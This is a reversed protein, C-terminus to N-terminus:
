WSQIDEIGIIKKISKLLYFGSICVLLHRMKYYWIDQDINIEWNKL